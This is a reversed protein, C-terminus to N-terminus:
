GAAWRTYAPPWSPPTSYHAWLASDVSFDVLTHDDGPMFHCAALAADRLWRDQAVEARGSVCFEDDVNEAGTSHLAYRGDRRLDGLKPSPVIFAVLRGAALLPNIPHLRPTGDRRVTALYGFGFGPHSFLRWGAEAMEPAAAEFEAWTAM